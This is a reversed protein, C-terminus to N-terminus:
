DGPDILASQLLVALAGRSTVDWGRGGREMTWCLQRPLQDTNRERKLLRLDQEGVGLMTAM